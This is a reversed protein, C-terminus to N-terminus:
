YLYVGADKGLRVDVHEDISTSLEYGKYNSSLPFAKHSRNVLVATEVRKVNTELLAKLSHAMTRGTNLVDDVIIIVKGKLEQPEVDLKAESALPNEKNIDLKVLSVSAKDVIQSLEKHLVEAMHYGKDYIGVLVLHKEEFNNEYIEFAIRKLIQNVQVETLILNQAAIM